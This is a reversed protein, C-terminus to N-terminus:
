YGSSHRKFRHYHSSNQVESPNEIDGATSNQPPTMIISLRDEQDMRLIIPSVANENRSYKDFTDIKPTKWKDGDPEPYVKQLSPM